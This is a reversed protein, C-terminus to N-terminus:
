YSDAEKKAVVTVTGIEKVTHLVVKIEKDVKKSFYITDPIYGVYSVILYAPLSDPYPISFHGNDAAYVMINKKQWAITAMPLPVEKGSSNLEMVYGGLPQGTFGLPSVTFLLISLIIKNFM